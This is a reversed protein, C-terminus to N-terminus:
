RDHYCYPAPPVLNKRGWPDPPIHGCGDCGPQGCAGCGTHECGEVCPRLFYLYLPVWRCCCCDNGCDHCAWRCEPRYTFFGCLNHLCDRAGKRCGRRHGCPGGGSACGGGEPAAPAPEAHEPAPHGPPLAAGAPPAAPAPQESPAPAPAEAAPEPHFVAMLRARLRPAVTDEAHVAAAGAVLLFTLVAVWTKRM